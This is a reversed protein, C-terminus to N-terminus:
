GQTETRNEQPAGSTVTRDAQSDLWRKRQHTNARLKKFLVCLGLVALCGLWSYQAWAAGHADPAAIGIVAAMLALVLSIGLARLALKVQPRKQEAIYTGRWITLVVALSLLVLAAAVVYLSNVVVQANM